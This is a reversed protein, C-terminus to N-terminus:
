PPAHHSRGSAPQVRHLGAIKGFRPLFCLSPERAFIICTTRWGSPTARFRQPRIALFIDM